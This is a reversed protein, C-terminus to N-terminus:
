EFIKRDFVTIYMTDSFFTDKIQEKIVTNKSYIEGVIFDLFEPSLKIDYIDKYNSITDIFFNMVGSFIKEKNHFQKQTNGLPSTEFNLDNNIKLYTGTPAVLIGEEFFESNNRINSKKAELDKDTQFLAFMNDKTYYKNHESLNANCYYGTLEKKMIKSLFHQTTGNYSPDVIAIKDSKKTLKNLYKLYLERQEKSNNLIQTKNEYIIEKIKEIDSVTNIIEDSQIDLGFRIKCYDQLRGKFPIKLTKEIDQENKIGMITCLQRSIKLYEAKPANKIKMETVTFNYLKELFYGDRAVFFIKDTKNKINEQIIWTIYTFLIPAFFVYGIDELNDFVPQGKSKSLSFPSNFIKSIINGMILAEDLSCIKPLINKLTSNKLIEYPTLIHFTNIEYEQANQIDDKINDGIHLAKKGSTINSYHEWLSKDAKSKKLENSLLIKKYGKVGVNNLIKKIIKTDYYIDSILNVDKKQSVAYQFAELIDQRPVLKNLDFSQETKDNVEYKYCFKEYIESLKACAGLELGYKVRDMLFNEKNSALRGLIRWMYAPEIIKRTVLTDFIDFSIVDHKDIETKLMELNKNWYPNSILDEEIIRSEAKQGTCFYIPIKHEKQLFEIREFITQFYIDESLIIILDAKEIAEEYSLVKLGFFTKGVNHPERDLLGIFNYNIENLITQTKIGIGYLVIKKNAFKYFNHKFSDTLSNNETNILNTNTLM